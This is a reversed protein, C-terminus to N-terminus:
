GHLRRESKLNPVKKTTSNKLLLKENYADLVNSPLSKLYIETTKLSSHGLMASIANLPIDQIMAHTAFSHRSVYSTLNEQIGCKEAILKLKKNYRKRAWKIDKDQLEASERKIINFIYNENANKYFSLIENLAPTIKIDYPKSTKNRQYKIRGDIINSHKLLAMDYFNMGYLMYSIVFYNRTNFLPDTAQLKLAFIKNLLNVEIARKATPETQIKYKKFPYFKEAVIGSKIALNYIARISRLYAALGNTNNGKAYHATEFRKLFEFTMQKFGLERNGVFNELAKLADTYANKSGIRNAAALGEIIRDAFTFFSSGKKENIIRTKIEMLSLTELAGAEQLELAIDRVSKLEAEIEQNLRTVSSVGKYSNRVERKKSNWFDEPVCFGTPIPLTRNDRGIRIIVACSGDKKKYRTDLTTVISLNM